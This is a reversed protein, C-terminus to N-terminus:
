RSRCTNWRSSSASGAAARWRADYVAPLLCPRPTRPLCQLSRRSFCFSQLRPQRRHRRRGHCAATLPLRRVRHEFVLIPPTPRSNQECSYQQLANMETCDRSKTAAPGPGAPHCRIAPYEAHRLSAPGCCRRLPVSRSATLGQFRTACGLILSVARRSRHADLGPRSGISVRNLSSKPGTSAM